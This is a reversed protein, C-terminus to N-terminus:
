FNYRSAYTAVGCIRRDVGRVERYGVGVVKESAREVIADTGARGGLM